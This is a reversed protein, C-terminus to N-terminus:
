IKGTRKIILKTISGQFVIESEADILDLSERLKGIFERRPLGHLAAILRLLHRNIRFKEASSTIEERPADYSLEYIWAEGCEDLVRLCEKFVKSPSRIHHLTGTSIVLNFSHEKFPLSQADGLVIDIFSHPCLNRRSIKVMVPSIDLCVASRFDVRKTLISLLMGTGCGFELIRSSKDLKLLMEEVVESHFGSIIRSALKDYIHAPGAPIGQFLRQLRVMIDNIIRLMVMIM